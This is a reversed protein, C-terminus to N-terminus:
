ALFFFDGKKHKMKKKKQRPDCMKKRGITKQM